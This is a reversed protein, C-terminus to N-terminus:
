RGARDKVALNPPFLFRGALFNRRSRERFTSNYGGIVQRSERRFNPQLSAGGLAWIPLM